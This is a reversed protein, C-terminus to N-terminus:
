RGRELLKDLKYNQSKMQERIEPIITEVKVIRTEHDKIDKSNGTITETHRSSASMFMGWTIGLSLAVGILTWMWPQRATILTRKEDDTLDPAKRIKEIIDNNGM